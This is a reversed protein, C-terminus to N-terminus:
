KKGIPKGSLNIIGQIIKEPSESALLQELADISVSQVGKRQAYIYLYNAMPSYSDQPKYNPEKQGEPQGMGALVTTQLWAPQEGVGDAANQIDIAAKIAEDSIGEESATMHKLEFMADKQRKILGKIKTDVEEKQVDDYANKKSVILSRIESDYKGIENKLNKRADAEEKDRNKRETEAQRQADIMQGAEMAGLRREGQELRADDNELRKNQYDQQRQERDLQIGTKVVDLQNKKFERVGVAFAQYYKYPMFAGTKEDMFMEPRPVWEQIEGGYADVADKYAAEAGKIQSKMLGEFVKRQQNQQIAENARQSYETVTKTIGGGAMFNLKPNQIEGLKNM